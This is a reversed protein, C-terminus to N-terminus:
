GDRDSTTRTAPSLLSTLGLDRCIPEAEALMQAAHGRRRHRPVVHYGIHGGDRALATTLRHRIILTGLYDPGDVFWLETVPVAWMERVVRRRDVFGPSRLQKAAITNM